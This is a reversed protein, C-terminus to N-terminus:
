VVTIVGSRIVQSPLPTVSLAPIGIGVSLIEGPAVDHIASSLASRYLTDGIKLKDCFGKIAATVNAAIAATDAGAAVILAVSIDQTIVQGGVVSWAAGLGAWNAMETTVANVLATSFGGSADTIYITVLGTADEAATAFAVGPVGLAGEVLASQVARRLTVPRARTRERLSDESEIEAGGAMRAANTVTLTADFATSIMVTLFGVDVNGAVGALEATVAVSKSLDAGGFVLDVDTLVRVQNGLIDQTTGVVFGAPLTGGGAAFSARTFTVQGTAKNAPEREVGDDRCRVVLDDGFAGDLFRAKALDEARGLVKDSMAAGAAITVDPVTGDAILLEPRRM